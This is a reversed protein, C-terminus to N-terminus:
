TKRTTMYSHSIQVRFFTSHQLILEKLSHHQLLSKITGQVSLLDSLDIMFPFWDQINMPLVSASAGISKDGSAFLRSMLFSGAAPFSQLYCSFPIISSCSPEIADSVWHVHTQALEQLHYLVHFGPMSCDMPDCLTSWSQAVSYCCCYHVINLM